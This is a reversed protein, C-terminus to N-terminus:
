RKLRYQCRELNCQKCGSLGAIPRADAGMWMALSISKRPVMLLSPLLEVGLERHPLHEFLKTQATLPWRGYGPSIRCSLSPVHTSGDAEEEAVETRSGTVVCIGLRDAAEEAAASGMADLLLAATADGGDARETARDEIRKGATTLGIVLGSAEMPELGVDQAAELPLHRYAGRADVLERAEELLPRIRREIREPPHRGPPYGLFHLVDEHRITVPLPIPGTARGRDHDDLTM